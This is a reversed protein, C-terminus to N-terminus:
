AAAGAGHPPLVDYAPFWHCPILTGPSDVIAIARVTVKAGSRMYALSPSPVTTRESSSPHEHCSMEGTTGVTPSAPDTGSAIEIAASDAGLLEGRADYRYLPAFM